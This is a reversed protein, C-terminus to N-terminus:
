CCGGKRSKYTEEMKAETFPSPNIKVGQIESPDLLKKDLLDNVGEALKIFVDEVNDGTKASTELFLLNNQRALNQAEEFSVQRKEELDSKNGVLCLVITEKAFNKTEDLWKSINNFSNRNTIDYMLLGAIAGRYYSRTISKFAEQGATDWIQIKVVKDQVKVVKGGFDVGITPEHTGLFTGKSFRLVLCTKGCNSDGVVIFRYLYSPNEM